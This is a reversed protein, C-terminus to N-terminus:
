QLLQKSRRGDVCLFEFVPTTSFDLLLSGAYGRKTFIEGRHKRPRPPLISGIELPDRGGEDVLASAVRVNAHGFLCCQLYSVTWNTGGGEEGVTAYRDGKGAPEGDGSAGIRGMRTILSKAEMIAVTREETAKCRM